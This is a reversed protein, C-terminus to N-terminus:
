AVLVQFLFVLNISFRIIANRIISYGASNHMIFIPLTSSNICFGKVAM